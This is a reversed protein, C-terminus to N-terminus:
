IHMTYQDSIHECVKFEIISSKTHILDFCDGQCISSAQNLIQSALKEWPVSIINKMNNRVAIHLQFLLSPGAPSPPHGPLGRGTEMPSNEARAGYRGGTIGRSVRTPAPPPEKWETCNSFASSDAKFCFSSVGVAGGWCGALLGLSLDSVSPIYIYTLHTLPFLQLIKRRSRRPLAHTM